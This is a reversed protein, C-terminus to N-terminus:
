IWQMMVYLKLMSRKGCKLMDYIFRSIVLSNYKFDPQAPEKKFKRPKRSM